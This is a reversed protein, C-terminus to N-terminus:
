PRNNVKSRAAVPPSNNLARLSSLAIGPTNSRCAVYCDPFIRGTRGAEEGALLAQRPGRPTRRFGPWVENDAEAEDPGTKARLV